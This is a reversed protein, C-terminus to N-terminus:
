ADLYNIVISDMVTILYQSSTSDRNVVRVKKESTGQVFLSSNDLFIKGTENFIVEVDEEIILKGFEIQTSGVIQYPSGAKDWVQTGVYTGSVSTQAQLTLTLLGQTILTAFLKFYYKM